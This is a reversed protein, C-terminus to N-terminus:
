AVSLCSTVLKSLRLVTLLQLPVLDLRETWLCWCLRTYYISSTDDLQQITRWGFARRCHWRKLRTLILYVEM